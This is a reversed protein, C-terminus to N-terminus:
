FPMQKMAGNMKRTQSDEGDGGRKEQHKTQYPELVESKDINDCTPNITERELRQKWRSKESQEERV